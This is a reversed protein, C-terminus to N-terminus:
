WSPLDYCSFLIIKIKLELELGSWYSDQGDIDQCGSFGSIIKEVDTM